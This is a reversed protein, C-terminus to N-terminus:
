LLLFASGIIFPMSVVSLITTLCVTKVAYTYDLDYIQAFVAVNSGIPASAAIIVALKINPDIPLFYLMILTLGPIFVLRIFSSIYMEKGVFISKLDTQALYVGLIIMAIPANLNALYSITKTAVEPMPIQFFFISLGITMAILIPNKILKDIKIYDKSDTMVVVGYTWQLINLLAVFASIYFVNENGLIATAIPIGMFGANSFAVGFHEVKKRKGYVLACVCISLILALLSVIFSIILGEVRKPTSEVNYSNIIVAPLIIYLLLNCLEKSGVVTIMKKKFFIYGIGILLFMIMLQKLLIILLNM